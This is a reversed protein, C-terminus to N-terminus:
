FELGLGFMFNDSSLNLGAGGFNDARTLNYEAFFYSHNVGLDTDFDAALRRELFDLQLAMGGTAAWGWKAGAFREGDVYEVKGGVFSWWPMWVLGARLYPVLPIGWQLAAYDFDYFAMLKIPAIRLGKKENVEVDSGDAASAKAFKEAYGVSLGGGANGIGKYAYHDYSIEGMLMGSSGFSESYPSGTLGAESDIAEQPNYMGVKMKLMGYRPSQQTIVQAGAASAVLMVALAFLPAGPRVAM